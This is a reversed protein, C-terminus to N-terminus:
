VALLGLRNLLQFLTLSQQVLRIVAPKSSVLAGLV